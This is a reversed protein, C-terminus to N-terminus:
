EVTELRELRRQTAAVAADRARLVHDEALRRAEEAHHGLVAELIARHEALAARRREQTQNTFMRYRAM